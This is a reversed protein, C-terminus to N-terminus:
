KVNQAGHNLSPTTGRHDVMSKYLLDNNIKAKGVVLARALVRETALRHRLLFPFSIQANRSISFSDFKIM